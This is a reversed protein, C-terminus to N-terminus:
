SWILFGPPPLPRLNSTRGLGDWLAGGCKARIGDLLLATLAVSFLFWKLRVILGGTLWEACVKLPSVALDSKDWWNAAKGNRAKLTGHCNGYIINGILVPLAVLEHRLLYLTLSRGLLDRTGAEPAVAGPTPYPQSIVALLGFIAM